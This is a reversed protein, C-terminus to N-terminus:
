QKVIYNIMKMINLNNSSKKKKKEYRKGEKRKKVVTVWKYSMGAINRKLKRSFNSGNTNKNHSVTEVAENSSSEEENYEKQEQEEQEKAAVNTSIKESIPTTKM